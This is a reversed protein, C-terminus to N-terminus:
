LIFLTKCSISVCAKISVLHQPLLVKHLKYYCGCANCLIEKNELRRWVTTRTVGCNACVNVEPSLFPSKVCFVCLVRLSSLSEVYLVLVFAQVCCIPIHHLWKIDVESM